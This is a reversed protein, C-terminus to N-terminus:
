SSERSTPPADSLSLLREWARCMSSSARRAQARPAVSIRVIGCFVVAADADRNDQAENDTGLSFVLCFAFNQMWTKSVYNM